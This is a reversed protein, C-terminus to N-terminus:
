RSIALPKGNLGIGPSLTSSRKFLPAVAAVQSPTVQKTSLAGQAAAQAQTGVDFGQLVSNKIEKAKNADSIEVEGKKSYYLDADILGQTVAQRQAQTLNAWESGFTKINGYVGTLDAADLGAAKYEEFSGYQGGHFPNEPDPPAENHQARMGQVYNQYVPDTSAKLLQGTHEKQIDRTSPQDFLSKGLGIAGGIGAGLWPMGFYSGILAGSGAMQAASRGTGYDNTLADYAGFAGLAPAFYNGASGIGGLSWGSAAAEAAPTIAAVEGIGPVFGGATGPSLAGAAAAGANTVAGPAGAAGIQGLLNAGAANAAGGGFQNAAILGATGLAVPTAQGLLSNNYEQQEEAKRLADEKKKQEDIALQPNARFVKRGSASSAVPDFVYGPNGPVEYFVQGSPLVVKKWNQYQTYDTGPFPDNQFVAM